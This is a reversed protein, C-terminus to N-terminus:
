VNRLRDAAAEPTLDRQAEALMEFGVMFKRVSSSRLLPPFFHAHLQWEPHETGDTPAGHWGMSYPFSTQFLADYRRLGEKLIEALSTREASDLDHLRKVHRRPILLYEFPWVAWFPTILAWHDNLVVVREKAVLEQELIDLLLPRNRATFYAAQQEGERAPLTPLYDTCWIQGHPHPNSAGMTAGKNEFIQIWRYKSGLEEVQAAWLDVVKVIGEPEMNALSVNHHPSYCIVRCEGSAPASVFLGSDMEKEHPGPLLASFDNTFVFTERYDPNKSGGARSNRPCLYCNPDYSPRNETAVAEVAGQWPRQTRHPSVLVWEGTLPNYRRHPKDTIPV